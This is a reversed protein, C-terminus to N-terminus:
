ISVSQKPKVYQKILREAVKKGSKYIGQNYNTDLAKELEYRFINVPM